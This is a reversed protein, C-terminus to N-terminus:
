DARAMCVQYRMFRETRPDPAKTINEVNFCSTPRAWTVARSERWCQRGKTEAQEVMTNAPSAALVGLCLAVAAKKM